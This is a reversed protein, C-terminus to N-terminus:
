REGTFTVTGYLVYVVGLGRNRVFQCDRFVIRQRLGAYTRESWTWRLPGTSREQRSQVLVAGGPTDREVGDGAKNSAFVCESLTVNLSSRSAMRLLVAGACVAASNMDFKCQRMELRDAKLRRQQRETQGRFGPRPRGVRTRATTSPSFRSGNYLLQFAGGEIASNGLFRCEDLLIRNGGRSQNFVATFSSSWTLHNNGFTTNSILVARNKANEGFVVRLSLGDSPTDNEEVLAGAGEVTCNEIIVDHGTTARSFRPRTGTFRVGIVSQAREPRRRPLSDNGIFRSRLLVLRSDVVQMPHIGSPVRLTCESFTMESSEIEFVTRATRQASSRELFAEDLQFQIGQFHIASSQRINFFPESERCTQRVCVQLVVASCDRRTEAVFTWHHAKVLSVKQGLLLTCSRVPRLVFRIQRGLVNNKSKVMNLAGTLTSCVNRAPNISTWCPSHQDVNQPREDTVILTIETEHGAGCCSMDNEARPTHQHLCSAAFLLLVWSYSSMDVVCRTM